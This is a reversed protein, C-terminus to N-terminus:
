LGSTAPAFPPIQKAGALPARRPTKKDAVCGRAILRVIVRRSRYIVSRIKRTSNAVAFILWSELRRHLFASRDAHRTRCVIRSEIAVFQIGFLQKCSQHCELATIKRDSQWVVPDTNAALYCICKIVYDSGILTHCLFQLPVPSHTALVASDCLSGRESVYKIAPRM